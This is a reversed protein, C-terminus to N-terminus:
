GFYLSYKGVERAAPRSRSLPTQWKWTTGEAGTDWRGAPLFTSVHCSTGGEVTLFLAIGQSITPSFVSYVLTRPVPAAM